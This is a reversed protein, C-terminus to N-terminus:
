QLTQSPPPTGVGRRSGFRLAFDLLSVSGLSRAATLWALPGETAFEWRSAILRLRSTSRAPTRALKGALQQAVTCAAPWRGPLVTGGRVTGRAILEGAQTYATYVGGDIRFSALKKPIGWLERGGRLSAESDVWVHTISVQPRAGARVLVAALLERYSLVGGPEYIAWATGVLGSRGLQVPLVGPPLALLDDVPLRWATLHLQGRLHWPEPPYSM